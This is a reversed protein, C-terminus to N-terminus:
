DVPNEMRLVALVYFRGMVCRRARTEEIIVSPMSLWAPAQSIRYLFLRPGRRASGQRERAGRSRGSSARSPARM